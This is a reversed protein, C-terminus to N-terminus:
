QQVVVVSFHVRPPIVIKWVAPVYVPQVRRFNIVGYLLQSSYVGSSHFQWVMAYEEGSLVVAEAISVVEEWM